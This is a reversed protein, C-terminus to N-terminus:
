SWGNWRNYRLHSFFFSFSPAILLRHPLLLPLISVDNKVKKETQWNRHYWFCESVVVMVVAVVLWLRLALRCTSSQQRGYIHYMSMMADATVMVAAAAADFVRYRIVPHERPIPNPSTSCRSDADSLITTAVHRAGSSDVPNLRNCCDYAFSRKSTRGRSVVLRSPCWVRTWHKDASCPMSETSTKMAFAPMDEGFWGTSGTWVHGESTIIFTKRVFQTPVM